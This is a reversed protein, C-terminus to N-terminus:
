NGNLSQMFSIMLPATIEPMEAHPYHGANEIMVYKGRVAEAIRKAEGEPDKFDRDKSGMLVLAPQTVQPMREGSAEKSAYLMQLVAELRGREKLNEYLASTYEDFDAPKRTPYLSAYYKLWMSPGWPRAFMISFLIQLFPDGKGDVFPDVLIIGRVLDPAEVAAWIAAGGGMSTGVIVAPGAKLERILDLIDGGVGAVSFDDWNTSTEGHGRVDMTAVQFGAEV